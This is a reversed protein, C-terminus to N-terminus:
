RPYGQRQQLPQQFRRCCRCNPLQHGYRTLQSRLLLLLLLLLLM